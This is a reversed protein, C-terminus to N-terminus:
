YFPMLTKLPAQKLTHACPKSNTVPTHNLHFWATITFACSPHRTLLNKANYLLFQNRYRIVVVENIMDILTEQESNVPHFMVM